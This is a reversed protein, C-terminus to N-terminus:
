KIITIIPTESTTTSTIITEGNLVIRYFYLTSCEREDPERTQELQVIDVEGGSNYHLQFSSYFPSKSHPGIYFRIFSDSNNASIWWYEKMLRNNEEIRYLTMSDFSYIASDGFVLDNGASDQIMLIAGPPPPLGSTDDGCEDKNCSYVSILIIFLFLYRM